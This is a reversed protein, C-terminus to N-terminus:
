NSARTAKMRPVRHIERSPETSSMPLRNAPAISEGATAPNDSAKLSNTAAFQFCYAWRDSNRYAPNRCVDSPTIKDKTHTACRYRATVGIALTGTAPDPTSFAPTSLSISRNKM